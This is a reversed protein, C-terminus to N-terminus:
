PESKACGGMSKKPVKSNEVKNKAKILLPSLWDGQFTVSLFSFVAHFVIELLAHEPTSVTTSGV